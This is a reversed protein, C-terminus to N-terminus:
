AIKALRMGLVEAGGTKSRKCDILVPPTSPRPVLSIKAAHIITVMFGRRGHQYTCEDAMCVCM